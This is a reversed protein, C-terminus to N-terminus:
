RKYMDIVQKIVFSFAAAVLALEVIFVTITVSSVGVNANKLIELISVILGAHLLVKVLRIIHVTTTHQPRGAADPRDPDRYKVLYHILITLAIHVIVGIVPFQFVISKSEELAPNGEKDLMMPVVDPLMFYVIISSILLVALLTLSTLEILRETKTLHKPIM